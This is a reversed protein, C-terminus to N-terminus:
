QRWAHTARYPPLAARTSQWARRPTAASLRSSKRNPPHNTQRWTPRTKVGVMQMSRKAYESRKRDSILLKGGSTARAVFSASAKSCCFGRAFDKRRCGNVPKGLGVTQFISTKALWAQCTVNSSFPVVASSLRM